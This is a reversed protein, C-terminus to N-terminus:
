KKFFLHPFATVPDKSRIHIQVYSRLFGHGYGYFQICVALLAMIAINISRYKSLAEIFLVIFYGAFFLFPIWTFFIGILIALVLFTIFLSPFWYTVKATTPHWKNLIPRVLGFKTVQQYFKNWSIRRKHFVKAKPILATDYGLKWLRITLDPDEGPHINGFGGSRKFAEKSIGMNFSRPQFKNINSVKGRIGGTTFFSTMSYNIAKQLKSFNPHADDPGGFCHVYNKKLGNEVAQLYNTPLIVDSDLILFYDGKAKRMGYNRSDGPGTNNKFYYSVQLKDAYKQVINKSSLTSGDEVIVIEFEKEFLLQSASQLLEDIEDPRNYVPIIFSFSLEM